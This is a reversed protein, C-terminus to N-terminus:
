DALGYVPKGELQKCYILGVLHLEQLIERVEGAALKSKGIIEDEAAYERKKNIFEIVGKVNPKSLLAVIKKSLERGLTESVVQPRTVKEGCPAPVYDCQWLYDFEALMSDIIAQHGPYKGNFLMMNELNRREASSSWNYSGAAMLSRNVILVKHHLIYNRWHIPVPKLPDKAPPKPPETKASKNADAAPVGDLQPDVTATESTTGAEGEETPIVLDEFFFLNSRWKYKISVNDLKNERIKQELYPAIIGKHEEDAIVQTQDMLIRVKVHPFRQAVELLYQALQFHTWSFMFIDITGNKYNAQNLAELLASDIAYYHEEDKPEGNFIVKVGGPAAEASIYPESEANGIEDAGYENWLRAFEEAFQRAVGAENKFVFRNEAFVQDSGYSINSSGAFCDFPIKCAPQHFVGFKEHMTGYITEGTSLKRTRGRDVFAQQYIVKVQFMRELGRPSSKKAAQVKALFEQRIPQTWEAVGDLLLKVKVGKSFATELLFDQMGKDSLAYMAMKITGGRRTSEILELVANNLTPPLKRGDPMQIFRDKNVPAFGGAPAFYVEIDAWLPSVTFFFAAVLFFNWRM